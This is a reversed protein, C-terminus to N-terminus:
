GSPNVASRNLPIRYQHAPMPTDTSTNRYAPGIAAARRWGDNAPGVVGSVVSVSGFAASGKSRIGFTCGTVGSGGSRAAFAPRAARGVNTCRCTGTTVSVYESTPPDPIARVFVGTSRNEDNGVTVSAIPAGTCSGAPSPRAAAHIERARMPGDALALVLALSELM